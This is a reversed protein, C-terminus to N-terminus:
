PTADQQVRIKLTAAVTGANSAFITAVDVASDFPNPLGCGEYWVLPKDAALTFEDDGTTSNNTQLTLAKNSLIYLSKLASVDIAINIQVDNTAANITENVGTTAADVAVTQTIPTGGDTWNLSLTNIPM